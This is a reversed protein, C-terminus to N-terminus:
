TTSHDQIEPPIRGFTAFSKFPEGELVRETLAFPFGVTGNVRIAYAGPAKHHTIWEGDYARVVVEGVYAGILKWWLELREGTLPGDALLQACVDDLEALSDLEGDLTRGFEAAVLSVCEAAIPALGDSGTL